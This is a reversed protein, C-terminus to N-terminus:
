FVINIAESITKVPYIEVSSTKGKIEKFSAYPMIVKKFGNREAEIVRNLPKVVSRVEGTLGVEGFVATDEPFPVARFSSYVALILPLDVATERVKLGNTVNFYIDYGGLNKGASRELVAMLMLFRNLDVGETVRRPYGFSTKSVLSQLEVLFVRNGEVVPSVVVGSVKEQHEEIFFKSVDSVEVLGGGTMSFVGIEDTPGYRNKVARLIRFMGKADSEFYLVADVTHEVTKPGAVTGEKTIHGVLLSPIGTRKSLSTIRAVAERVQVVSGPTSSFVDSFLTQVSDVFLVDPKLSSVSDVILDVSTEPLLEINEGSVKLRDARMKIQEASEEGNVYIVKLGKRSLNDAIQLILTSKGTGPEGAILVVEGAVIGGGLVRDFESIGTKLRDIKRSFVDSLRVPKVSTQINKFNQPEVPKEVFSNWEGCVPCQGLWKPSEYGCNSCVFVTKTKRPKM